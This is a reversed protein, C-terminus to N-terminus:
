DKQFDTPLRPLLGVKRLVASRNGGANRAWVPLDELERLLIATEQTVADYFTRYQTSPLANLYPVKFQLLLQEAARRGRGNGGTERHDVKALTLLADRAMDFTIKKM